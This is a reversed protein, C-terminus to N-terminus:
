TSHGNQVGTKTPQAGIEVLSISKIMAIVKPADYDAYQARRFLEPVYAMLEDLLMDAKVGRSLYRVWAVRSAESDGRAAKIDALAHSFLWDVFRDFDEKSTNELRNFTEPNMPIRAGLGHESAGRWQSKTYFCFAFAADLHLV